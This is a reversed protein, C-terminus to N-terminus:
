LKGREREEDQKRILSTAEVLIEARNWYSRLQQHSIHQFGCGRLIQYLKAFVARRQADPHREALHGMYEALAHVNM